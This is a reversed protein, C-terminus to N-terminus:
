VLFGVFLYHSSNRANDSGGTRWHKHLQLQAFARGAVAERGRGAVLWEPERTFTLARYYAQVAKAGYERELRLIYAPRTKTSIQAAPVPAILSVRFGVAIRQRNAAPSTRCPRPSRYGVPSFWIDSGFSLGSFCSDRGKGGAGEPLM